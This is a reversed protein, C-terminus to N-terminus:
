VKKHSVSASLSREGCAAPPSVLEARRSDFTASRAQAIARSPLPLPTVSAARSHLYVHPVTCEQPWATPATCRVQWLRGPLKHRQRHCTPSSQLAAHRDRHSHPGARSRPVARLNSACALAHYAFLSRSQSESESHTDARASLSFCFPILFPNCLPRTTLRALLVGAYALIYSSRGYSVYM